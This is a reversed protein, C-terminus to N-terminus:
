QGLAELLDLVLGRADAQLDDDPRGHLFDAVRMPGVSDIDSFDDQLHGLALRAAPDDRFPRLREAVEGIGGSGFNQLVYFLDYADKNEGRNRFALAKLVVFAGPGCVRATRKARENLVTVGDLPVEVQDVFALHLGPTIIAALDSEIDQLSGATSEPRTPPMLFDVTVGHPEQLRWRQRTPQGDDNVDPSFNAQRLRRALEEYRHGDLLALALGVDLDLTGVHAEVGAQDIILSPVLGGVIVIQDMLDGLKTAVYLCTAKVVAVQQSDYGSAHKPKSVM